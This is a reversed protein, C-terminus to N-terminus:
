EFALIDNAEWQRRTEFAAVAVASALNLSRVTSRIPIRLSNEPNRHFLKEPLGQAESGFVLVDGPTFSASTYLRSASKSFFWFRNEPLQDILGDWDDVVEWNLHQWYDLGARRLQKQDIQFGLPRVLWLKAGIAVCTRGVNGTNQPIEPQHLVIHLVPDYSVVIFIVTARWTTLRTRDLRQCDRHMEDTLPFDNHGLCSLGKLEIQARDEDRVDHKGKQRAGNARQHRAVAFRDHKSRGGPQEADHADHRQRCDAIGATAFDSRNNADHQSADDPRNHKKKRPSPIRQHRFIDPRRDCVSDCDKHRGSEHNPRGDMPNEVFVRVVFMVNFCRLMQEVILPLSVRFLRAFVIRRASGVVECAEIEETRHQGNECM